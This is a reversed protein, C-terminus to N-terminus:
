ASTARARNNRGYEQGVPQSVPISAVIRAGKGPKSDIFLVGGLDHAREQMSTLGFTEGTTSREPVFGLGNDQVSLRVDDGELRLDVSIESAKAHKVVNTVAERLIRLLQGEIEPSLATFDGVVNCNIRLPEGETLLQVLETVAVQLDQANPLPSRVTRVLRRSEALGERAIRLTRQCLERGQSSDSMFEHAAEINYIMGAFSQALVDHIECAIRTRERI